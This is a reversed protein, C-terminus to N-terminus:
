RPNNGAPMGRALEEMRLISKRAEKILKRKLFYPGIAPPVWFGPQLHFSYNIETQDSGLPVIHWETRGYDFDSEEPLMTAVIRGDAFQEVDEVMVVEFCFFAVCTKVVLRRRTSHEPAGPIVVSELMVESLQKYNEHDTLIALIGEQGADIQMTLNLRYDKGKHEVHASKIEGAGSLTSFLILFFTFSLKM